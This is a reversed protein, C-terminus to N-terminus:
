NLLAQTMEVHRPMGIREYTELAEKLLTRATERDGPAARDILMMTHFRRIEAQELVNPFSEAHRLAIQFHEVAAEWQRAAAAAVGAITQTFRSIHWLWVAGPGILERALQYLEGAQSQEGLIALGEIVNPLM